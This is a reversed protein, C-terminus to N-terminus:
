PGVKEVTQTQNQNCNISWSLGGEDTTELPLVDRSRGAGGFVHEKRQTRM